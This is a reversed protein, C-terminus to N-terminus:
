GRRRLLMALFQESSIATNIQVAGGYTRNNNEDITCPVGNEDRHPHNYPNDNVDETQGSPGRAHQSGKSSDDDEDDEDSDDVDEDCDDVDENNNNRSTNPSRRDRHASYSTYSPVEDVEAWIGKDLRGIEPTFTFSLRGVIIKKDKLSAVDDESTPSLNEVEQMIGLQLDSVDNQNGTGQLYKNMEEVSKPLHPYPDYYAGRPVHLGPGSAVNGGITVRGRPSSLAPHGIPYFGAPYVGGALAPTSQDYSPPMDNNGQGESNDMNNPQNQQDSM